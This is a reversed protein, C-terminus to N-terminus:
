PQFRLRGTPTSLAIHYGLTASSYRLERDLKTRSGASVEYETNM